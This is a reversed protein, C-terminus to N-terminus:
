CAYIGLFRYKSGSPDYASEFETLQLGDLSTKIDETSMVWMPYSAEFIEAPVRQITIYSEHPVRSVITRDILIPSAPFKKRLDYIMSFPDELYMLVGSLLLIPPDSILIADLSKHFDVEDNDRFLEIGYDYYSSQELIHWSLKVNGPLIQKHQAYLAGFGGGVDVVCLKGSNRLAYCALFWHLPYNYDIGQFLVSDRCYKASGSLVAKTSNLTKHLILESEYGSGCISRAHGWSEYREQFQEAKTKRFVKLHSLLNEVFFKM